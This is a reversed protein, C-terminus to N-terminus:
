SRLYPDILKVFYKRILFAVVVFIILHGVVKILTFGFFSTLLYFPGTFVLGWVSNYSNLLFYKFLYGVALGILFIPFLMFFPGFDIYCDTMFGTSHSSGEALLLGTYKMSHHTDNVIPKNPFFLRPMFYFTLANGFLNGREYPINEPVQKLTLAFFEIFSLRDVMFKISENFTEESLNDSLEYFMSITSIKSEVFGSTNARRGLFLRYDTKIATWLVAFQFLIFIFPTLLIIRKFSLVKSFSVFGIIIYIIFIKFESFYSSLSLVMELFSIVFFIKLSNRKQLATLLYLLYFGWKLKSIAVLITNIGPITLRFSALISLVLTIIIYGYLIKKANYQNLDKALQKYFGVTKLKRIAVYVGLSLAILGYSSLYFAREINENGGYVSLVEHLEIGLLNAYWVKISIQLWQFLLGVLIVLPIGPTYFLVGVINLTILSLLSTEFNPTLMSVLLLILDLFLLVKKLDTRKGLQTTESIM